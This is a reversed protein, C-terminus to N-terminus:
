YTGYRILTATDRFALIVFLGVVLVFGALRVAMELRHDVRRRMLGEVGLLLVHFGDFPPIPLMNLLGLNASILGCLSLVSAWGLKAAEATSAMIGIPGSLEPSVKKRVMARVSVVVNAVAAESQKLALLLGLGVSTRKLRPGLAVGIRGVVQHPMTLKGTHDVTEVRGIDRAPIVQLTVPSDGRLVTLAIRKGPHTSIYRHVAVQDLVGFTVGLVQRALRDGEKGDLKEPVVALDAPPPPELSGIANEISTADDRVIWVKQGPRLGAKLARLVDAPISAPQDGIQIIRSGPRLGMREGVSGPAVSLVETSQRSGDVALVVDGPQIQAAEAVTNPFVDKIVVDRDGPLPVGFFVNVCWYVLVALVVNMFSGACVVILGQWRPRTHFGREVDVEGPEMGAIRVFGGFPIARLSYQTEGRTRRWLVPGFGMAFEYVAMRAAKAAVFHGIEHFFLCLGIVVVIALGSNAWSLVTEM